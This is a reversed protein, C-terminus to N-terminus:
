SWQYEFANKYIRLRNGIIAAVDFRVPYEQYERHRMRYEDAARCIRYQKKHDVAEEPNGMAADRRYKMEVFVLTNEDVAILDIEGRHGRYNRQLIRYGHKELVQATIEEYKMGTKRRNM